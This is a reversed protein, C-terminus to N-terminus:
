CAPPAKRCWASISSRRRSRRRRQQRARLRLPVAHHHRHRDRHRRGRRHDAQRQAGAFLPVQDRQLRAAHRHQLHRGEPLGRSRQRRHLRRLRRHHHHLPHRSQEARHRHCREDRSVHGAHDREEKGAAAAHDRADCRRRHSILHETMTATRSRRAPQRQRTELWIRCSRCRLGFTVPRNEGPLHRAFSLDRHLQGSNMMQGRNGGFRAFIQRKVGAQEAHPQDLLGDVLVVDAGIMQEVGVALGIGAGIEGEEIKRGRGLPAAGVANRAGAQADGALFAKAKPAVPQLLGAAHGAVDISTSPRSVSGNSSPSPWRRTSTSSPPAPDADGHSFLGTGASCWIRPRPGITSVTCSRARVANTSVSTMFM